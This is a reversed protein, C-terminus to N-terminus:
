QLNNGDSLCAKSGSMLNMGIIMEKNYERNDM